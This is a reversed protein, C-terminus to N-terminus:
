GVAAQLAALVDGGVALPGGFVYGPTGPALFALYVSIPAPLPAAPNVLLMAGLRGGTAMFVGGSLADPYIVGTAAGYSAAHPFFTSAVAGSTGYEDLGYVPTAQPDAGAAAAPGGIAYRILPAHALLYAATEPAQVAGDTLLIAGHANIAAPVASLADPFDLGTAEFITSPEDLATAIDVATAFENAGGLREVTYGLGSLFGDITPSLALPGGLIYLHTGATPLVRQIETLVRPDITPSLPAGPTILLPGGAAAALPGGALADSFFDSRALVVARASLVGPFEHQSVAISTDIADQGFIRQPQPTIAAGVDFSASAVLLSDTADVATLTYGSGPLSVACGAFSAVGLTPTLPNTTCTLAAGATGTGSTIYLNIPSMDTTVTRGAVDEIAVVPQPSLAQGATAGAPETTFALQHATGNSVNFTTSTVMASGSTLTATATLTYGTGAMSVKCGTFTAVGAVAPVAPCTLTGGGPNSGNGIVLAVSATADSGTTIVTGSPDEVSVVIPSLAAGATGAVPETSFVLQNAAAAAPAARAAELAAVGLLVALGVSLM